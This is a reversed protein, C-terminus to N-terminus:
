FFRKFHTGTGLIFNNNSFIASKIFFSSKDFTSALINFIKQVTQKTIKGGFNNGFSGNVWIFRVFSM